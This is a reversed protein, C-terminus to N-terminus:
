AEIEALYQTDPGHCNIKDLDETVEQLHGCPCYWNEYVAEGSQRYLEYELHHAKCNECLPGIVTVTENSM